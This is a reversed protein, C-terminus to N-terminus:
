SSKKCSKSPNHPIEERSCTHRPFSIRAVQPQQGEQKKRRITTHECPHVGLTHWTRQTSALSSALLTGPAILTHLSTGLHLVYLSYMCQLVYTRLKTGDSYHVYASYMSTRLHRLLVTRLTYPLLYTSHIGIPLTAIHLYPHTLIYTHAYCYTCAYRLYLVYLYTGVYQLLVM